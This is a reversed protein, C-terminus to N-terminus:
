NGEPFCVELDGRAGELKALSTARHILRGCDPCLGRLNGNTPTRPVYDVMGLAPAKPARCPLCYMHGPPCKQRRSTRLGRLYGQATDGRFLAPRVDDVPALGHRKWKLVTSRSVGLIEAIEAVTYTRHIKLRRIDALNWSM